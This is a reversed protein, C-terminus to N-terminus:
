VVILTGASIDFADVTAVAVGMYLLTNGEFSFDSYDFPPQDTKGDGNDFIIRDKKPNFDAIVAFNDVSLFFTDKGKGGKLIDNGAGGDLFDDGRGGRLVDDGAGGRLYDDGRGGILIDDGDGGFLADAGRGGYLMDNGDGGLMTDAGRKAFLADDGGLGEILDAKKAGVLHDPGNTGIIKM